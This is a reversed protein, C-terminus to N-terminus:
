KFNLEVMHFADNTKHCPIFHATKSFWDVVVMMAVKKRQTKPLAMIFDMSVNGLNAISNSTSYISRSPFLEKGKSM